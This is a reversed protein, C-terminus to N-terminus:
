TQTKALAREKETKGSGTEVRARIEGENDSSGANQHGAR